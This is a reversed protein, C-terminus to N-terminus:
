LFGTLRWWLYNLPNFVLLSLVAIPLTLRLASALSIGAAQLGVVVPPVQYPLVMTAIGVAMTMLVQEVNWGAATAFTDALPGMLAPQAPNTGVMGMVTGLTTLVMFNGFDAGAALPLWSRSAAGFAEALGSAATVTGLGVTAAIYIAASFKIDNFATAPRAGVRPLLILIAAALAVWGAAIGHLFDTIWFGLAALLIWTLRKEADSMAGAAPPAEAGAIREGLFRCTLWVLLACKAAAMLPFQLWLWQAYTFHVGYLQDAVGALVLNPANAPLIGIGIQYSGVIAILLLGLMGRGGRALGAREAAGVVIPILLLIRGVTGPMVTALVTTAVMVATALVPYSTSYRAFLRAAIRSGLGTKHVAEAIVLGGLVLWFTATSFGLFIVAPPAVAFLVALLFFLLSTVHEPVTGLAWLGVTLLILAAARMAREDLGGPPATFLLALAALVLAVTAAALLRQKL